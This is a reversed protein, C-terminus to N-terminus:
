GPVAAGDALAHCSGCQQAMQWLMAAEEKTPAGRAHFALLEALDTAVKETTLHDQGYNGSDAM